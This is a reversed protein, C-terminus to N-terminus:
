GPAPKAWVEALKTELENQPASYKNDKAGSADPEPLAKKDIKGNPTLPFSKLEVWLAPVMYGPLKGHLYAVVAQNDIAEELVIYGVLRKSGQKDEKALVIAQSVLGSQMLVTEIEGM